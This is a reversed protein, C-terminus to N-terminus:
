YWEEKLIICKDKLSYIFYDVEQEKDGFLVKDTLQLTGESVRKQLKEILKEVTM